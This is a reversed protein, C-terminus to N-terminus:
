ARRRIKCIDIIDQETHEIGADRLEGRVSYFSREPIGLARLRSKRSRPDIGRKGTRRANSRVVRDSIRKGARQKWRPFADKQRVARSRVYTASVRIGHKQFLAEVMEAITHDQEMLDVIDSDYRSGMLRRAKREPDIIGLMVARTQCASTTREVGRIGSVREAIEPWRWGAKYLRELADIEADDWPPNLHLTM